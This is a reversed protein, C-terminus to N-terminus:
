GVATAIHAADAAVSDMRWACRFMKEFQLLGLKAKLAVVVDLRLEGHGKVVLNFLPQDLAGVAVIHVVDNLLIRPKRRGTLENSAGFAMRSHGAGEKILVSHDLGFTAASAVERVPSRIVLQENLGVHVLDAQLAVQRRRDGPRGQRGHRLVDLRRLSLQTDATVQANVPGIGAVREQLGRHFPALM